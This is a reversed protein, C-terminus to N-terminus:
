NSPRVKQILELISHAGTKKLINKRHTDITNKSVFLEAAIENSTKGQLVLQLVQKERESLITQDTVLDVVPNKFAAEVRTITDKLEELDVPKLLYDFIGKKIGRISYQGYATVLIIVPHYLHAHIRDILEFASHNRDLEVDLFVLRPKHDLLFQLAEEYSSFRGLVRINEYASLLDGLRECALPDDDIIVCDINPDKM